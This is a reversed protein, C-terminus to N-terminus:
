YGMIDENDSDSLCSYFFHEEPTLQIDQLNPGNPAPGGITNSNSISAELPSALTSRTSMLLDTWSQGHGRSVEQTQHELRDFDFQMKSLALTMVRNDEYVDILKELLSAANVIKKIGSVFVGMGPKCDFYRRGDVSGDCVVKWTSNQYSHIEVGIMNEHSFHVPGYYKVVGIGGGELLVVDGPRVSYKYERNM